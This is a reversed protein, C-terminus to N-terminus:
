PVRILPGCESPTCCWDCPLPDSYPCYVTGGYSGNSNYCTIVCGSASGAHGCGATGSCGALQYCYLGAAAPTSFAVSVLVALSLSLASIMLKFRKM